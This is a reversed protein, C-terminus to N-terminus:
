ESRRPPLPLPLPAPWSWMAASPPLVEHVADRLGEAAPGPQVRADPVLLPVATVFIEDSLVTLREANSM